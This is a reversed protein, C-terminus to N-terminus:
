HGSCRALTIGLLIAAVIWAIKDAVWVLVALLWIPM